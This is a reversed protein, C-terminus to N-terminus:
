RGLRRGTAWRLKRKWEVRRKQSSGGTPPRSQAREVRSAVHAKSSPGRVTREIRLRRLRTAGRSAIQGQCRRGESSVHRLLTDSRSLSFDIRRDKPITRYTTDRIERASINESREKSREHKTHETESSPRQRRGTGNISEERKKRKGNERVCEREGKRERM